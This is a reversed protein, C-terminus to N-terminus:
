GNLTAVVERYTQRALKDWKIAKIGSFLKEVTDGEPAEGGLARVAQEVDAQLDQNRAWMLGLRPLIKQNLALNVKVRGLQVPDTKQDEKTPKTWGVQDAIETRSPLEGHEFLHGFYAEGVPEEPTGKFTSRIFERVQRGVPHSDDTLIDLFVRGFPRTGTPDETRDGHEYVDIEHGRQKERRKLTNAEGLAKRVFWQGALGACATKPTETGAFMGDKLHRHSAEWLPILGVNNDVTLGFLARHLIDQREDDDLKYSRFVRGVRNELIRWAGTDRTTFWDPDMSPHEAKLMAEAKALGRAGMKGWTMAKVGAAGELLLCRALQDYGVNAQKELYAAAVRSVSSGGETSTKAHKRVVKRAALIEPLTVDLM